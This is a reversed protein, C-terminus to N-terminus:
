EALFVVRLSAPSSQPLQRSINPPLLVEGRLWGADGGDAKVLFAAHEALCPKHMNEEYIHGPKPFDDRRFSNSDLRGNWGASFNCCAVKSM